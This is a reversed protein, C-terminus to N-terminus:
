ECSSGEEFSILHIMLQGPREQIIVKKGHNFGIKTLWEGSIRLAPVDKGNSVANTVTLLRVKM